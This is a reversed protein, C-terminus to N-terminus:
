PEGSFSGVLSMSLLSKNYPIWNHLWPPQCTGLDATFLSSISSFWYLWELNLSLSRLGRLASTEPLGSCCCWFLSVFLFVHFLTKAWLLWGTLCEPPLYNGRVWVDHKTWAKSRSSLAWEFQFPWDPKSWRGMWINMEDQFVRMSVSLIMNSWIYRPVRQGM